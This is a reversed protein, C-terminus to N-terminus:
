INFKDSGRVPTTLAREIDWNLKNIRQYLSLYPINFEKAWLKLCQTTGNYTININSRKNKNQESKTAWRVNNPEYNGDNNIRDLTYGKEGYHALKSVDDYFSQLDDKWKDCMKIGRGGYDKYSKSNTNYCRSKIGRWERSIFTKSMGHTKRNPKEKHICGCCNSGSHVLTYANVDRETGCDCKCHWMTQVGKNTSRELVTWKGFRMGTLDRFNSM